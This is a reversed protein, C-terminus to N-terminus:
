YESISLLSDASRGPAASRGHGSSDLVNQALKWHGAMRSEGKQICGLVSIAVACVAIIWYGNM